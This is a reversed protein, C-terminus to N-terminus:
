ADGTGPTTYPANDGLAKLAAPADAPAIRILNPRAYNRSAQGVLRRGARNRWFRRGTATIIQSPTLRAVTTRVAAHEGHGLYELEVVAAGQAFWEEGARPNSSAPRDAGTVEPSSPAGNACGQGANQQAAPRAAGTPTSKARATM